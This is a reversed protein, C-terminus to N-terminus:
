PVLTFAPTHAPKVVHFDRYNMTAITTINMREAVAVVSADVTGLGLDAYTEVLEVVRAWDTETLDIIEVAPSTVTRLFTAEATPGLRDEIFWAAEPIVTAPVVLQGRYRRLVEVCRASDPRARDAAEVWINTDVIIAM